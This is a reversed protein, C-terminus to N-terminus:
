NGLINFLQAVRDRVDAFNARRVRCLLYALGLVVM